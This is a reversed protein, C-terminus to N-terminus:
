LIEAKGNKIVVMEEIRIGFKNDLYIGPEVTFVMNEEIQMNSKSSIFPYEHIDLGVGHGTSHSFYKGYGKKDIIDRAIKDIDSAKMGTRIKKITTENSKRVIDYIKQIEKDLFTQERNFNIKKNNFISTATRDSCYRKYKIGADVLLLDRDKLIKETPLSHPKASNENIAIIPNFSLDYNGLSSLINKFKFYLYKEDKQKLSPIKKAFKDFGARGIECAKKLYKIEEDTKIARQIRHFDIKSKFNTKCSNFGNYEYISWEKPNFIIEKVLHKDLLKKLSDILNSSEIITCSNTTKKVELIYRADTIFFFDYNLKLLIANDCSYGVEYYLSNEDRLIYNKM